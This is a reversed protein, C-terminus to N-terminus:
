IINIYIPIPQGLYIPQDWGQHVLNPWFFNLQPRGLPTPGVDAWFLTPNTDVWIYKEKRKKKKSQALGPGVM